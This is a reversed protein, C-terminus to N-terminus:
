GNNVLEQIFDDLGLQDENGIKAADLAAEGAVKLKDINSKSADAM